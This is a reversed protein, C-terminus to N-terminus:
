RNDLVRMLAAPYDFVLKVPVTLVQARFDPPLRVWDKETTLLRAGAAEAKRVLAAREGATFIHHDGFDKTGALTLGARRCIEYFKKPHGIGAFAFFKDGRPFDAALNLRLRARFVPEHIWQTVNKQDREGILVIASVRRLAEDLTERLPGAPVMLGNGFGTAGNIVLFSADPRVTPNQLGDDMIIHTGDQEAARIAAARNRGVWVPAVQALLLAEDGVNRATHRSLDVRLPGKERGGYGRTVFVPSQGSEKLLQAFALATPTKGSGGTVINGVCIVPINARYPAKSFKRRFEGGARWVPVLPSLMKAKLGPPKYWFAPTKM